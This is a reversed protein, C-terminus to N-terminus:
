RPSAAEDDMRRRRAVRSHRPLSVPRLTNRTATCCLRPGCRTAGEPSEPLAPATRQWKALCIRATAAPLPRRQAELPPGVPSLPPPASAPQTLIKVKARTARGTQSDGRPPYFPPTSGDMGVVGIRGRPRAGGIRSPALPGLLVGTVVAHTLAASVPPREPSYAAVGCGARGGRWRQRDRGSGRGCDPGCSLAPLGPRRFLHTIFYTM